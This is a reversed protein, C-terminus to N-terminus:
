YLTKDLKKMYQEFVKHAEEHSVQEIALIDTKKGQSNLFEYIAEDRFGIEATDYVDNGYYVKKINSWIIAGLCMPCPFASTYLECGSLDHTGLKKCADRIAMIEGHATPDNDALVHNHGCGIIKGNKVVVAGFPGGENTILNIASEKIAEQMFDKKDM